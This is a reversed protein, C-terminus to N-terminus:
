KAEIVLVTNRFKIILDPIKGQRDRGFRYEANLNRMLEKFSDTKKPTMQCVPLAQFEDIDSVESIKKGTVKYLIAQLKNVGSVGQSRSSANDYLSQQVIH